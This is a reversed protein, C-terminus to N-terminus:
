SNKIKKNPTEPKQSMDVHTDFDRMPYRKHEGLIKRMQKLSLDVHLAHDDKFALFCTDPFDDDNYEIIQLIKDLDVVVEAWRPKGNIIVKALTKLTGGGENM